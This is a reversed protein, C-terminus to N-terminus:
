AQAKIEQYDSDTNIAWLSGHYKGAIKQACFLGMLVSHDMNNYKYSGNRGIFYLNAVKDLESTIADLVSEYGNFYVPYSKHIRHVAVGTIAEPKIFGSKAADARAQAMLEDDSKNWLEDDDNAWYEFAILHEKHGQQMETSWNAFDCMRGTLIEPSHVYIWHDPCLQAKTPDIAVYVLITNRYRLQACLDQVRPQLASLSRVMSSFIGSSVVMDYARTKPKAGALPAMPANSGAAGQGTALEQTVIGTVKLSFEPHPANNAWSPKVENASVAVTTLGVVQQKFLFRGGLQEIETAVRDYVMGSGRRPYLFEDILTLPKGDKNRQPLLANIIAKSLNLSKIRQKAFQDSLESCKIGWLRESYTKFFIEYLRQGFANSVWAEFTPEKRPFLAAYAYSLVCRTSELFGLKFLADFGKLPYDFFKGNYLIRTLRQETIFDDAAAGHQWFNNIEDLKSFFRHPGLDAKQGLVEVTRALGGVKDDLEFIDVAYGAKLLELACSLGAPGAGIVAVKGKPDQSTESQMTTEAGDIVNSLLKRM